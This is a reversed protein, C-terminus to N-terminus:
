GGIKVFGASGSTARHLNANAGAAAGAQRSAETASIPRYKLRGGGCREEIRAALADTIRQDQDAYESIKKSLAEIFALGFADGEAAKRPRTWYDPLTAVHKARSAILQRRLVDFAYQIMELKPKHALVVWYGKDRAGKFGRGSEWYCRSGFVRSLQSLLAGEWPPPTAAKTSQYRFEDIESSAIAGDSIGHAAMLKQAMRMANEAEGPAAAPDMALALLKKLRRMVAEPDTAKGDEKGNNMESM